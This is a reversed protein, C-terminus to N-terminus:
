RCLIEYIAKKCALYACFLPHLQHNLVPRVISTWHFLDYVFPPFFRVFRLTITYLLPTTSVLYVEFIYWKIWVTVLRFVNRLNRLQTKFKIRCFITVRYQRANLIYICLHTRISMCNNERSLDSCSTFFLKSIIKRRLQFGMWLTRKKCPTDILEYMNMPQYGVNLFTKM